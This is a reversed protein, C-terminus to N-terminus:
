WAPLVGPPVSPALLPMLKEALDNHHQRTGSSQGEKMNQRPVIGKGKTRSGQYLPCKQIEHSVHCCHFCKKRVREYEVDVYEM